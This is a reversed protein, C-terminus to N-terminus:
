QESLCLKPSCYLPENQSRGCHGNRPRSSDLIWFLFDCDEKPDGVNTAADWASSENETIKRPANAPLQILLPGTLVGVVSKHTRLIPPLSKLLQGELVM